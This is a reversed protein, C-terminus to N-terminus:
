LKGHCNISLHELVDLEKIPLCLAEDNPYALCNSGHINFLFLVNEFFSFLDDLHVKDNSALYPIDERTVVVLAIYSDVLPLHEPMDVEHPDTLRM